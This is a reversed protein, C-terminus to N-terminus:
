SRERKLLRRGSLLTGGTIFLIFSIPEPAVTTTINDIAVWTSDTSGTGMKFWVTDVDNYNFDFWYPKDYSTTITNTYQLAGDKWGEIIVNQSYNWASTIYAGTFNFYGTNLGM